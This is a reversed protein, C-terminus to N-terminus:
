KQSFLVQQWEIFQKNKKTVFNLTTGDASLNASIIEEDAATRVISIPTNLTDALQYAIIEDPLVALAIATDPVLLVQMIPKSLRSILTAAGKATHVVWLEFPSYVVHATVADTNNWTQTLLRTGSVSFDVVDPTNWQRFQTENSNIKTVAFYKKDGGAIRWTGIGLDRTFPVGDRTIFTGARPTSSVSLFSDNVFLSNSPAAEEIVPASSRVTSSTAAHQEILYVDNIFTTRMAAVDVHHPYPFFGQAIISVVHVGPFVARIRVPASTDVRENDLFVDAQKPVFTVLLNGTQAIRLPSRQLRYGNGFLLLIAATIFYLVVLTWFAIRRIKLSIM